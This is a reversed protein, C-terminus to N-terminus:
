GQRNLIDKLREELELARPILVHDEILAHVALDKEFMQLQTLLIRYPTQNTVPPQYQLITNRVQSLDEETDHHNEVFNKLSFDQSQNFSESTLTKDQELKLLTDIYPLVHMEEAKIHGTLNKRYDSYFSDLISLLPHAGEYDRLLIGISQEIELLKKSLYFRHTRRIYDVITQLSFGKYDASSFTSLDEFSQLLVYIFERDINIDKLEYYSHLINSDLPIAYRQVIQDVQFSYEM